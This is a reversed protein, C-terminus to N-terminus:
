KAQRKDMTWEFDIDEDRVQAEGTWPNLLATIVHEGELVFHIVAFESSGRPSFRISAKGRDMLGDETKIDRIVIGEALVNEKALSPFQLPIALRSRGEPDPYLSLYFLTELDLGQRADERAFEEEESLIEKEAADRRREQEGKTRLNALYDVQQVVSQKATIERRVYYSNKEIDIILHYAEGRALAENYLMEWTGLLRRIEGRQKAMVMYEIRGFALTSLVGILIVVLAVEVLTM